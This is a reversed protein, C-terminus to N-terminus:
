SACQCGDSTEICSEAPDLCAGGCVGQEDIGCSFSLDQCSCVNNAADNVCALGNDCRGGCQGDADFGCEPTPVKCQCSATEEDLECNLREPCAGGCQGDADFGCEVTPEVCQCVDTALQECTSGEPCAGGCVGEGSFGCEVVVPTSCLCENNLDVLCEEGAPCAGGCVGAEDYGCEVVPNSCVCAGDTVGCEQDDPCTGGCVGDVDYGCLSVATHCSCDGSPDVDCREGEPCTGGCVGAEDYGCETSPGQCLCNDEQDIGCDQGEPCVGGCTGDEDYGCSVEPFVCGCNGDADVQCTEGELCAGGCVREEDYGCAPVAPICTCMNSADEIGCVLGDECEGGCVGEEDFTCHNHPIEVQVSPVCVEDDQYVLGLKKGFQDKLTVLRLVFEQEMQFCMLHNLATDDKIEYNKDGHRKAVPNCIRRATLSGIDRRGFQDRLIGQFYGADQEEVDYCLYHDANFDDPDRVNGDSFSFVERKISPTLLLSPNFTKFNFMGFQNYVLVSKELSIDDLARVRYGTYHLEENNIPYVQGNHRKKTPNFLKAPAGVIFTAQLFSDTLEVKERLAPGAEIDYTMYHDPIQQAWSSCSFAVAILLAIPKIAQWKIKITM